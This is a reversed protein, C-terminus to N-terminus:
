EPHDLQRQPDTARYGPLRELLKTATIGVITSILTALIISFILQNIQLGMIAVLLTPPVLQVSSTNIALLMVMSNTATDETPNLEQMEEMAKIGMPTAANGLGLMNASLNLVIMGMAPHGEPIEPFLPRMVPQIIRVMSDILGADEGIKLLGLWLALIGILGLAISVATEAFNFAARAIANLKVFRVPNFTLATEVTGGTRNFGALTGRLPESDEQNNTFSRITALPEPFDAGAGFAVQRGDRTQILTGTYTLLSDHSLDVAYFSEYTNPNIRVQVPIRRQDPNYGNRLELTVPVPEGNRYTDQQLDRVDTALAFVLSTIILGAWIYNLM